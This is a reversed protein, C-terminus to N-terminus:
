RFFVNQYAWVINAYFILGNITGQSVTMDLVEIFLVLLIGAAAFFILLALNVNDSCLLCINSALALSYESQCEGCLIGFRNM